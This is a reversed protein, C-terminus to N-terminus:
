SCKRPVPVVVSPQLSVVVTPGPWSNTIPSLRPLEWSEREKPTIWRESTTPRANTRMQGGFWVPQGRGWRQGGGVKSGERIEGGGGGHEPVPQAVDAEAPDGPDVLRAAAGQGPGQDGGG